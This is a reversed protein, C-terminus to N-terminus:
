DWYGLEDLEDCEENSVRMFKAKRFIDHWECMVEYFESYKEVEEDIDVGMRPRNELRHRYEEPTDICGLDVDGNYKIVGPAICQSYPMRPDEERFVFAKGDREFDLAAYFCVDHQSNWRFGVDDCIDLFREFVADFKKYAESRQMRIIFENLDLEENLRRKARICRNYHKM